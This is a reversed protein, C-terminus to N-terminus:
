QKLPFGANKLLNVAKDATSSLWDGTLTHHIGKFTIRLTVAKQATSIEFIDVIKLNTIERTQTMLPRLPKLIDAAHTTARALVTCDFDSSPYPPQARYCIRTESILAKLESLNIDAMAVHGKIGFRALMGPHVTFVCGARANRDGLELVQASYCGEWQLVPTEEPQNLVASTGTFGAMQEIIGSLTSLLSRNKDYVSVCLKPIERSFDEGGSHYTRGIEMMSFRDRTKANIGVKELMSPILSPRVRDHDCSIPNALILDQNREPWKAKELLPEGILPHTMIEFMEGKLVLFDKIDRELKKLLSLKVPEVPGKPPKPDINGYGTIRGIEEVIDARCGIDKTARFSPVKISFKSNKQTVKFDLSTLIGSIEETDLDRGLTARIHDATITIPAPTSEQEPYFSELNGQICADPCIQMVLAAARLMATKLQASDLSKEYRRSADTRLGLRVSTRRVRVSDWNAAEIFIQTTHSTVASDLGGMVGAVSLPGKHDYILIDGPEIHRQAKDLTTLVCKQPASKVIIRDSRIKARDFIHLPIGTELMVYNSIDTINNLARLGCAALRQQMWAPSPSVKIDDMCLGEFGRCGSGPAAQVSVPGSAPDSTPVPVNETGSPVQLDPCPFPKLLCKFVAAFERAMGYHGWLDPRHTLSKNDIDLLAENSNQPDPLVQEVECVCLTIGLAIEEISLDPLDVYEKIWATSIIM